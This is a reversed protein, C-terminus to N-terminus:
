QACARGGFSEAVPFINRRWNATMDRGSARRRSARRFTAGGGPTEEVWIRGCQREILERAIALGLGTRSDFRKKRWFPEFILERESRLVGPGHDCVDLRGDDSM